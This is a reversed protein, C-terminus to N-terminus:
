WLLSNTLTYKFNENWINGQFPIKFTKLLSILSSIQFLCGFTGRFVLNWGFWDLPKPSVLMQFKPRHTLSICTIVDYNRLLLSTVFPKTVMTHLVELKIGADLKMIMCRLLLLLTIIVSPEFFCHWIPNIFIKFVCSVKKRINVELIITSRRKVVLTTEKKKIKPSDIGDLIDTDSIFVVKRTRLELHIRPWFISSVFSYFITVIM